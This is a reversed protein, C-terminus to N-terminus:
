KITKLFAEIAKWYAESGRNKEWLAKAGHFGEDEPLYFQKGQNPISDYIEKWSEFEHKASSIFVPCKQERAYDRIKKNQYEFYEGPSFAVIASVIDQNENALVFILSASYSSGWLMIKKSRYNEKIYNIAARMDPLADVYDTGKGLKTAQKNTQNVVGNIKHGSRQDIAICTYGLENLKPAIPRYEGRSFGAQHFLLIIPLTSEDTMYIDAKITLSDTSKLEITEGKFEVIMERKEKCQNFVASLLILYFLRIIM